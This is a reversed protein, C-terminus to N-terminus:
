LDGCGASGRQALGSNRAQPASIVFDFIAFDRFQGVGCASGANQGAGSQGL